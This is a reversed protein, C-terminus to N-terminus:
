SRAEHSPCCRCPCRHSCHRRLVEHYRSYIYYVREEDDDDLCRLCSRHVCLTRDFHDDPFGNQTWKGNDNPQAGASVREMTVHCWVCTMRELPVTAPVRSELKVLMLFYEFIGPSITSRDPVLDMVEKDNQNLTIWHLTKSVLKFALMAPPELMVYVNRLLENPLTDLTNRSGANQTAEQPRSISKRAASRTHSNMSEADAAVDDTEHEIERATIRALESCSHWVDTRM